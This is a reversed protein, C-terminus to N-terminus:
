SSRELAAPSRIRDSLAGGTDTTLNFYFLQLAEEVNRLQYRDVGVTMKAFLNSLIPELEAALEAAQPTPQILKLRRDAPDRRREILHFTELRDLYTSLTMPEVGMRDALVVQRVSPNRMVYDLTRLEGPTLGVSGTKLRRETAQRLALSTEILLFWINRECSQRVCATKM